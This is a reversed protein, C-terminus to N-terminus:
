AKAEKSLWFERGKPIVEEKMIKEVLANMKTVAISRAHEIVEALGNAGDDGLLLDPQFLERYLNPSVRSKKSRPIVLAIDVYEIQEAGSHAAFNHRLTMLEDHRGRYDQKLQVRELKVPRGECKSFSKGYFTLAAVFLGKVLNYTKRDKALKHGKTLGEGVRLQDIETLWVLASRLDKEILSYGALQKCLRSDMPVRRCPKGDYTYIRHIRGSSPEVIEKVEYGTKM